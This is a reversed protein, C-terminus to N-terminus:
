ITALRPSKQKLFKLFTSFNELAPGVPLGFRVRVRVRFGVTVRVRVRVM